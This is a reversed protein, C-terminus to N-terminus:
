SRTPAPASTPPPAHCKPTATRPRARHAGRDEDADSGLHRDGHGLRDARQRRADLAARSQAQEWGFAAAGQAYCERLKKSSYPTGANQDRDSYCRLRLEVPDLKLKVALEDMACELAYVGTAGGPARMDAPTPVDLKALKQGYKANACKYLAGSWGVDNRAFDEYQSTMATLEHRVADLTGGSTAGLAISEISGPRYGLTFTQQRTLVVRVSRELARAALVALTVQHTPRLASGYAGGVFPSVVRLNDAKMNFVSCLYRQVNQVGQTKDYVTLKGDGDWVVTSGFLEMPNHHEIPIFYEAEHQVEAAAYAKDFKGRSKAPSMTSPRMRGNACAPRDYHPEAKYEVRVLTAAYRATEFDEAVVLAVPQGAFMIKDDYLPRYPSGGPAVDDQYARTTGAMRPRHEHTLVDIVGAVRLAESADIRTIRGKAIDSTSSM